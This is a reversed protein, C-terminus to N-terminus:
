SHAAEQLAQEIGRPYSEETDLIHQLVQRPSWEGEPARDFDADSIGVLLGELRGRAEQLTGLILQAETAAIGLDRLTKALHVTHELEHGVLRYLIARIPMQQRYLPAMLGMQEEPVAMLRQNLAAHNARMKELFDGVASM